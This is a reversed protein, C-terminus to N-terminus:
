GTRARWRDSRGVPRPHGSLRPGARLQLEAVGAMNHLQVALQNAVAALFELEVRTFGHTGGLRDVYLLAHVEDGIRLPAAMASRVGAQVM